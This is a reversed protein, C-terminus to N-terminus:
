NSELWHNVYFSTREIREHKQAREMTDCSTSVKKKIAGFGYTSKFPIQHSYFLFSLFHHIKAADQLPGRVEENIRATFISSFSPLFLKFTQIFLSLLLKSYIFTHTNNQIRKPFSLVCLSIIWCSNLIVTCKREKYLVYLFAEADSFM